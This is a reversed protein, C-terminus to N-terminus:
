NSQNDFVSSRNIRSSDIQSLTNPQEQVARPTFKFNSETLTNLLFQRPKYATSQKSRYRNRNMKSVYKFGSINVSM